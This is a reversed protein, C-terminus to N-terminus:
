VDSHARDHQPRALSRTQRDEDRTALGVQGSSSSPGAPRVQGSSARLDMSSCATVQGRSSHGAIRSGGHTGMTTGTPDDQQADVQSPRQRMYKMRGYSRMNAAIDQAEVLGRQYIHDWADAQADDLDLQPQVQLSPYRKEIVTDSYLLHPMCPQEEEHDFEPDLIGEPWQNADCVAM